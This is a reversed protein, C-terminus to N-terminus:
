GQLQWRGDGLRCAIGETRKSRPGATLIVVLHRCVNGGADRFSATPTVVGSLHGHYRHWVYSSGDGVEALALQVSELAAVEDSTDLPRRMEAFKPRPWIKAKDLAEPCTCTNAQDDDKAAPAAPASPEAAPKPAADALAVPPEARAAVAFGPVILIAAFFFFAVVGTAAFAFLSGSDRM